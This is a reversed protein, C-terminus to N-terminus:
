QLDEGTLEGTLEYTDACYKLIKPGLSTAMITPFAARMAEKWRLFTRRRTKSDLSPTIDMLRAAAEYIRPEDTSLEHRNYISLENDRLVKMHAAEGHGFAGHADVDYFTTSPALQHAHAYWKVAMSMDSQWLFIPRKQDVLPKLQTLAHETLKNHQGQESSLETFHRLLYALLVDLTQGGMSAMEARLLTWAVTHSNQATGFRTDPRDNDSVTLHQIGVEMPLLGRVQVTTDNVTFPALEADEGTSPIEAIAVSAVFESSGSRLGPFPELADKVVIPQHPAPAGFPLPLAYGFKDLLHAVTGDGDRGLVAAYTKGLPTSLVRATIAEGHHHMVHPYVQGLLDIWHAVAFAYANPKMTQSVDLLKEAATVMEGTEASPKQGNKLQEDYAQLSRLGGSEDRSTSRGAFTAGSSLHYLQAYYRIASSVNSQWVEIPLRTGPDAFKRVIDMAGDPTEVHTQKLLFEGEPSALLRSAEEIGVALHGFIDGMTWGVMAAFSQRLFSWAVTHRGQPINSKGKAPELFTNPRDRNGVTLSAARVDNSGYRLSERPNQQHGQVTPIVDVQATFGTTLRALRFGQERLQEDAEESSSLTKADGPRQLPADPVVQEEPEHDLDLDMANDPTSGGPNHDGDLDMSNYPVWEHEGSRRLVVLEDPIHNHRIVGVKRVSVLRDSHWAVAEFVTRTETDLWRYTGDESVPQEVFAGQFVPTRAGAASVAATTEYSGQDAERELAPDDNIPLGRTTTTVPVSGQRQQVVHWTEHALYEEGRPGLYIDNKSALAEAGVAPPLPSHRHVRVDDLEIGSEDEARRRLADPLPTPTASGAAAGRPQPGDQLLERFISPGTSATIPRFRATDAPEVPYSRRLPNEARERRTRDRLPSSRPGRTPIGPVPTLGIPSPGADNQEAPEGAAHPRGADKGHAVAPTHENM